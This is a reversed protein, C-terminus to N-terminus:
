KNNDKNETYIWFRSLGSDAKIAEINIIRNKEGVFEKITEALVLSIDEFNDELWTESRIINIEKKM